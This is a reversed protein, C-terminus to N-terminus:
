SPRVIKFAISSYFVCYICWSADHIPFLLLWNRSMWESLNSNTAACVFMYICTAGLLVFHQHLLSVLFFNNLQIFTPLTEDIYFFPDKYYMLMRKKNMWENATSTLSLSLFFNHFITLSHFLSTQKFNWLFRFIHWANVQMSLQKCQATACINNLTDSGSKHSCTILVLFFCVCLLVM